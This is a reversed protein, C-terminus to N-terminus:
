KGILKTLEKRRSLYNLLAVHKNLDKYSKVPNGDKWVVGGIVGDAFHKSPNVWNLCWEQVPCVACIELATYEFLEDEFLEPDKGECEPKEPPDYNLM